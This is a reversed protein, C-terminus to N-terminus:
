GAPAGLFEQLWGPVSSRDDASASLGLPALVQRWTLARCLMGMRGALAFAALLAPRPAYATWRDLYVDRLRALEPADDPLKLRWAASRLCVLLTSFPHSVGAEGWDSLRVRGDRVFINADHFDENHLSEPIGAESLEAALAGIAPLRKRLRARDEDTLGDPQGLMVAEDNDLLLAIQAALRAPRRDLAGLADIEAARQALDIQLEALAGLIPEWLSLDSPTAIQTRLTVGADDLLLWGRAPDAGLCDVICDPRWRSLAATLAPEHALAPSCLKFYAAGDTTPIRWVTSWARHHVCAVPGAIRRGRAALRAAIWADAATPLSQADIEMPAGNDIRLNRLNVGIEHLSIDAYIQTIQPYIRGRGAPSSM